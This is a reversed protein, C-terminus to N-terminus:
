NEPTRKVPTERVLCHSACEVGQCITAGSALSAVRLQFRTPSACRTARLSALSSSSPLFPSFPSRSPSSFPCSLSQVPALLLLGNRRLPFFLVTRSTLSPFADRRAHVSLVTRCGPSQSVHSPLSSNANLSLLSSHDTLSPPFGPCPSSTQQRLFAPSVFFCDKRSISTEGADGLTVSRAKRPFFRSKLPQQPTTAPAAGRM